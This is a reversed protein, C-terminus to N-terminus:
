SPGVEVRGLLAQAAAQEAARKAAATGREAEGTTLRAEITFVPAHDPGERAIEVYDPPPLGRAQAWDQLATKPDRADEAVGAIRDGWLRLVAAEASAFGADLYIAAIVAGMADALLAEKRKGGSMTESRGLKLVEGL